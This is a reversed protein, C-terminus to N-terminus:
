FGVLPMGRLILRLILIASRILISFFQHKPLSREYTYSSKKAEPTLFDTGSSNATASQLNKARKSKTLNAVTSLNEIDGGVGGGGAGGGAGSPADHNAENAGTQPGRENDGTKRLM